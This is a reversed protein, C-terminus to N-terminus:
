QSQSPQPSAKSPAPTSTSTPSANIPSCNGPQESAQLSNPEGLRKLDTEKIQVNEGVKLLRQNVSAAQPDPGQLPNRTANGQQNNSNGTSCVKLSLLSDQDPISKKEGVQLISGAPVILKVLQNQPENSAPQLLTMDKTVRIQAGKELSSVALTSPSPNATPSSSAPAAEPNSALSNAKRDGGLIFWWYGFAGGLGLLLVIGVLPLWSRRPSPSSPLRQTKRQSPAAQISTKPESASPPPVSQIQTTQSVEAQRTEQPQRVQCHILAVTVNDHGNTANAVQVLRGAATALDVQGEIIPLIETEWYQEVRDNDSLGDSCLLFVCDEDVVFRQVTPHLTASSGMGLAQVLSGSAPQQVADRYLAYGLRVERSALDDDLTVQHCGTRTVRYARSDGVHTIFIEHTHALAMVLTTGMRQRDHRQEADNRQSIRDNAACASNELEVSLTTPNLNPTRLVNELRQRITDIALNSAVDGGEHGGIGDCVIGLSVGAGTTPSVTTGSPPYCADENRKRSPGTDSGTAIQYTCSQTIRGCEELGQELLAVLQESTQLQGQILQQCLEEIFKAVAPQADPAWQSWLQGLQPLEPAIARDLQLDLLRVLSGEVRLLGPTLLSSAVGYMSMPQWLQAMQWLWNLQRLAPATKWARVLEPMLQGELSTGTGGNYIPVQELLWIQPTGREQMQALLGYVQPIHLKYPSLKLYPAIADPIESGTEPPLGPKTDLLIRNGKLLYRGVLIDGAKYADIEESLARLYRRPLPTRCKQCFNHSQPNPAQCRPNPCYLTAAPNQM